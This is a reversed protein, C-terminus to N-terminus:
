FNLEGVLGFDIYESEMCLLSIKVNQVVLGYYDFYLAIFDDPSSYLLVINVYLFISHVFEKM